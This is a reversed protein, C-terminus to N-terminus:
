RQSYVNPTAKRHKSKIRIKDAVQAYFPRADGLCRREALRADTLCSSLYVNIRRRVAQEAERRTLFASTGLSYSYGGRKRDSFMVEGSVPLKRLWGDVSVIKWDRVRPLWDAVFATVPYFEGPVMGTM